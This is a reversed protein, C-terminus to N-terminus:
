HVLRLVLTREILAGVRTSVGQMTASLLTSSSLSVLAVCVWDILDDGYRRLGDVEGGMQVYRHVCMVVGTAVICMRHLVCAARLVSFIRVRPVTMRARAGYCSHWILWHSYKSLVLVAVWDAVAVIFLLM